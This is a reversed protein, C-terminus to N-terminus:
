PKCNLLPKFRAAVRILGFSQLDGIVHEINKYADPAEEYGPVPTEEKWNRM